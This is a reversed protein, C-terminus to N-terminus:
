STKKLTSNGPTKPFDKLSDQVSLAGDLSKQLSQITMQTQDSVKKKIVELIEEICNICNQISHVPIDMLRRLGLIRIDDKQMDILSEDKQNEFIYLTVGLNEPISLDMKEIPDFYKDLLDWAFANLIPLTFDKVTHTRKYLDQIRTQQQKQLKKKKREEFNSKVANKVADLITKRDPPM